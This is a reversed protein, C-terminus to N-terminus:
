DMLENALGKEMARFSELVFNIFETDPPETGRGIGSYKINSHDFQRASYINCADMVGKIESNSVIKDLEDIYNKHATCM